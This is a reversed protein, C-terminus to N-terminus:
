FQKNLTTQFQRTSTSLKNDSRWKWLDHKQSKAYLFMRNLTSFRLTLIYVIVCLFM